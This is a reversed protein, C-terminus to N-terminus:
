ENQQEEMWKKILNEWCKEQGVGVDDFECKGCLKGICDIPRGAHDSLWECLKDLPVSVPAAPILSIWTELRNHAIDAYFEDLPDGADACNIATEMLLKRITNETEKRSILDDM